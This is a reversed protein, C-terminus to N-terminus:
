EGQTGKLKSILKSVYAEIEEESAGRLKREENWRVIEDSFDFLHLTHHQFLYLLEGIPDDCFAIKYYRDQLNAKLFLYLERANIFNTEDLLWERVVSLPVENSTNKKTKKTTGM